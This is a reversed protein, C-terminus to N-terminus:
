EPKLGKLYHETFDTKLEVWMLKHDSMQWTRWKKRYYDLMAAADRPGDATDNRLTDGARTALYEDLDAQKSRYVSKYFDFVGSAGIELSKQTTRLAIQDYHKDGALNSREKQLDEPITFGGKKLAKMTDHEPHVINFDGLLIYDENSRKQRRKFFEAVAAIEDTRQKLKAGFNKGFYIHVTCLNFKFWGNQFAVMFPTRAFQLADEEIFELVSGDETAKKRKRKTVIKRGRPLVIEGAVNRFLVKHTNYVFALREENGGRGETTDTVIYAWEPGLRDMLKELPRLDRAVEQVAVLDFTSVIEAMYMLAEPLRPGHGFKNSDFDRINWTALLFADKRDFALQDSVDARLQKRLALLRGVVWARRTEEIDRKLHHYRPM